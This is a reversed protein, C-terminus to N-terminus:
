DGPGCAIGNGDGDLHLPDTGHVALGDPFLQRVEACTWAGPAAAQPSASPPQVPLCQGPDGYDLACGGRAATASLVDDPDVPPRAQEGTIEAAPGTVGPGVPAAAAALLTTQPGDAPHVAEVGDEAGAAVIAPPPPAAGGAAAPAPEGAGAPGPTAEAVGGSDGDDAWDVVAGQAAREAPSGPGAGGSWLAAGGIVVALVGAAAAGLLRPARM